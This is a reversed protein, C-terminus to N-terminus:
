LFTVSVDGQADQQGSMGWQNEDLISLNKKKEDVQFM